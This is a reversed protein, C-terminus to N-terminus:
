SIGCQFFFYFHYILYVTFTYLYIIEEFVFSDLSSVHFSKNSFIRPLLMNDDFVCCILFIIM